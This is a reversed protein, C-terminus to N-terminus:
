VNWRSIDLQLDLPTSLFGVIEAKKMMFKMINPARVGESPPWSRPSQKSFHDSSNNRYLVGLLFSPSCNASIRNKIPACECLHRAPPSLPRCPALSANRSIAYSRHGTRWKTSLHENKMPILWQLTVIIPTSSKLRGFAPWENRETVAAM